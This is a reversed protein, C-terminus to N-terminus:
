QTNVFCQAMASAIPAYTAGSEKSYEIQFTKFDDYQPTYVDSGILTKEYVMETPTEGSITFYNQYLSQNIVSIGKSQFYGLDQQMEGQLTENGATMGYITFIASSVDNFINSKFTPGDGDEPPAQSTFINRPYCISYSYTTNTYTTYQAQPNSTNNGNQDSPTPQAGMQQLTYGQNNTNADSTTTATSSPSEMNGLAAFITLLILVGITILWAKPLCSKWFPTANYIYLFISRALRLLMLVILIGILLFLSPSSYALAYALFTVLLIGLANTLIYFIKLTRYWRKATLDDEKM